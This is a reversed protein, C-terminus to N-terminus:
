GGCKVNKVLAEPLAARWKALKPDCRLPKFEEEERYERTTLVADLTLAKGLAAFARERAPSHSAIGLWAVTDRPNLRVIIEYLLNAKDPTGRADVTAAKVVKGIVASAVSGAPNKPSLDHAIVLADFADLYNADEIETLGLDWLKRASETVKAPRATKVWRAFSPVRAEKFGAPPTKWAAPTALAFYPALKTADEASVTKATKLKLELQADFARLQCSSREDDEGFAVVSKAIEPRSPLAFRTQSTLDLIYGVCRGDDPVSYVQAFVANLDSSYGMLELETVPAESAVAAVAATTVTFGVGGLGLALLAKLM